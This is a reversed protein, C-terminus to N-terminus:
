GLYRVANELQFPLNSGFNCQRDMIRQDWASVQCTSTGGRGPGDCPFRFGNILQIVYRHEEEKKQYTLSIDNFLAFRL